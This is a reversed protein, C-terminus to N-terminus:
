ARTFVLKMFERADEFAGRTLKMYQDMWEKPNVSGKSTLKAANVGYEQWREVARKQLKVFEDLRDVKEKKKRPKPM